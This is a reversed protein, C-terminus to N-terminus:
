VAERRDDSYALPCAPDIAKLAEFLQDVDGNTIGSENIKNVAAVIRSGGSCQRNCGYCRSDKELSMRVKNLVDTKNNFAKEFTFGYDFVNGLSLKRWLGVTCWPDILVEGMPDISISSRYNTNVLNEADYTNIGFL